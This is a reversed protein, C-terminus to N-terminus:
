FDVVRAMLVACWRKQFVHEMLLIDEMSVYLVSPESVTHHFHEIPKSFSIHTIKINNNQSMTTFLIEGFYKLKSFIQTHM